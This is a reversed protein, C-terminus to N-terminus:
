MLLGAVMAPGGAEIMYGLAKQAHQRVQRSGHQIASRALSGMANQGHQVLGSWSHQSTSDLTRAVTNHLPPNSAFPTTHGLGSAAEARWEINKTEDHSFPNGAVVGRWAIGMLTPADDAANPSLKTATTGLDYQYLGDLESRFRRSSDTPRFLVEHSGPSFTTTKTAFSFLDDVSLTGSGAGGTLLDQASLGSFYCLEGSANDATGTYRLQLCAGVCRADAVLDSQVLASAPDSLFSATTDLGGVGYPIAISNQPSFAPNTAQWLMMNGRVTTVGPFATLPDDHFEPNWFLYGCVSTAKLPVIRSKKTKALM